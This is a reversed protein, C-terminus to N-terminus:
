RNKKSRGRQWAEWLESHKHVHYRFSNAKMGVIKAAKEISGTLELALIFMERNEPTYIGKRGRPKTEHKNILRATVDRTEVSRVGCHPTNQDIGRMTNYIFNWVDVYKRDNGVRVIPRKFQTAGTWRARKEGKDDVYFEIRQAIAEKALAIHEPTFGNHKQGM